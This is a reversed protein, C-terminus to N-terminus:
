QLYQSISEEVRKMDVTANALEARDSIQRLCTGIFIRFQRVKDKLKEFGRGKLEDGNVAFVKQFFSVFEEYDDYRLLKFTFSQFYLMFNRLADFGQLRKELTGEKEMLALFRDLILIDERLRISQERKTLFTDFIDNGKIAPNFFSVLQVVSQEALNKLIGHSNEIKGKLYQPARSKFIERLEQLFVRKAEMSFQYSIAKIMMKITEDKGNRSVTDLYTVFMASESRLLLIVLLSPYHSGFRTSTDAYKLYRLFRFLHLLIVSICKRMEQTLIAKVVRSVERNDIIDFEPDLDKRFPNFHLNERLERGVM